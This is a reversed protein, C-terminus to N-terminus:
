AVSADAGAFLGAALVTAGLRMATRDSVNELAKPLLLAVLMWGGSSVALALATDRQTLGFLPQGSVVANVM